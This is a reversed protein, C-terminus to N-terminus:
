DKLVNSCLLSEKETMTSEFSIYCPCPAGHHTLKLEFDLENTIRNRFSILM